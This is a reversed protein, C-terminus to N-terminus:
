AQVRQARRLSMRVLLRHVISLPPWIMRAVPREYFVFTSWVLRGQDLRFTNFANMFPSELQCATEARDRDVIRWGLIYDPSHRPGLRLRLVFRWGFVIFWRMPASAGEWAARAWQESSRHDDAAVDIAYGCAFDAEQEPLDLSAMPSTEQARATTGAM